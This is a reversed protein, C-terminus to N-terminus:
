SFTFPTSFSQFYPNSKITNTLCLKDTVSVYNAIVFFSDDSINKYTPTIMLIKEKLDEDVNTNEIKLYFEETYNKILDIIKYVFYKTDIGFNSYDSGLLKLNICHYFKLNSKIIDYITPENVYNKESNSPFNDPCLSEIFEKHNSFLICNNKDNSKFKYRVEHTPIDIEKTNTIILYIYDETYIVCYSKDNLHVYKMYTKKPIKINNINVKINNADETTSTFSPLSKQSSTSFTNVWSQIDNESSFENILNNDIVYLFMNLLTDEKIDTFDFWCINKIKVNSKSNYNELITENTVVPSKNPYSISKRSIQKKLNERFDDKTYLIFVINERQEYIYNFNCETVSSDNFKYWKNTYLDKGFAFYHGSSGDVSGNWQILSSLNYKGNDGAVTTIEITETLHVPTKIVRQYERVFKGSIDREWEAKLKDIYVSLILPLSSFEIKLTGKKGKMVTNWNTGKIGTKWCKCGCLHSGSKQESGSLSIEFYPKKKNEDVVYYDLDSLSELFNLNSDRDQLTRICLYTIDDIDTKVVTKCTDCTYTHIIGIRFIPNFFNIYGMLIDLIERSELQQGREKEYDKHIECLTNWLIKISCKSHKEMNKFIDIINKIFKTEKETPKKVDQHINKMVWETNYFPIRLTQVAANFYCSNGINELGCKIGNSSGTCGEENQQVQVTKFEGKSIQSSYNTPIQPTYNLQNYSTQYQTPQYPQHKTTGFISENYEQSPQYHHTEIQDYEQTQTEIQGYGQTEIPDYEQTKEIPVNQGNIVQKIIKPQDITIKKPPSEPLDVRPPPLPPQPLDVKPRPLPPQPLDVKPIFGLEEKIFEVPPPVYFSPPPPEYIPLPINRVEERRVFQPQFPQKQQIQRNQTNNQNNSNQIEETWNPVDFLNVIGEFCSGVDYDLMNNIDEIFKGGNVQQLIENIRKEKEPYMNSYKKFFYVFLIHVDKRIQNYQKQYLFYKSKIDKNSLFGINERDIKLQIDLDQIPYKQQGKNYLLSETQEDEFQEKYIRNWTLNYKTFIVNYDEIYKKLIKELDETTIIDTPHKDKM